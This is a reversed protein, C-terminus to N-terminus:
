RPSLSGSQRAAFESSLQSLAYVSTGGFVLVVVLLAPILKSRFIMGWGIGLVIAAPALAPLLYRGQAQFYTMNFGIFLLITLVAILLGVWIARPVEKWKNRLYVLFALKGVAIFALIGKYLWNPDTDRIAKGSANMWIDMYGFVGIYSRAAWYGVWNLWYQVEPSGPANSAEITAIIMPKQASGTFAEKFVKQALPDGYIMQNRIWVPLAILFAISAWGAVKALPVQKRLSIATAVLGLISILGTSKTLCSLGAFVAALIMAKKIDRDEEAGLAKACLAFSWSIMSILLPDNSIAGSLACNMPLLAAFATGVIAVDERKTAWLAAFFIGIIGSVGILANFIRAVNGFSGTEVDTQGTVTAVGATLAYYLPPQHSEYEEGTDPAGPHLVPLAHEKLLYRVYNAHQREDPAGIDPAHAYGGHEVDRQNYLFGGTRYPTELAFSTAFALHLCAFVVLLIKTLKSPATM